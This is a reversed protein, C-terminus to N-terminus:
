SSTDYSPRECWGVEINNLIMIMNQLALAAIRENPSYRLWIEWLYIFFIDNVHLWFKPRHRCPIVLHKERLFPDM